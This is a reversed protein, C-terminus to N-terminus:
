QFYFGFTYWAPGNTEVTFTWTGSWDKGQRPTSMTWEGRSEWADKSLLTDNSM